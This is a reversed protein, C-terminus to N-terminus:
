YHLSNNISSTQLGCFAHNKDFGPGIFIFYVLTTVVSRPTFVGTGPKSSYVWKNEARRGEAVLKGLIGPLPRGSFCVCVNSFPTCLTIYVFIQLLNLYQMHFFHCSIM